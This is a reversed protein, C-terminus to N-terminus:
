EQETELEFKYLQPNAYAQKSSRHSVNLWFSTTRDRYGEKHMRVNLYKRGQKDARWLFDVPTTGIATGDEMDYVQVGPPESRFAAVGYYNVCGSTFLILIMVMLFRLQAPKFEFTQASTKRKM